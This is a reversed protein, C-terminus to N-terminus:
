NERRAWVLGLSVTLIPAGAGAVVGDSYRLEFALDRRPTIPSQYGIGLVYGTSAEKGPDCDTSNQGSAGCVLRWSTVPGLLGYVGTFAGRPMSARLLAGLEVSNESVQYRDTGDDRQYQMQVATLEARWAFAGRLDRDYRIAGEFGRRDDDTSGETDGALSRIGASLAFQAQSAVPLAILLILLRLM